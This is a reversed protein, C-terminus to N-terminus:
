YQIRHGRMYSVAGAADVAKRKKHQGAPLEGAAAAAVETVGEANTMGSCSPPDGRPSDPDPGLVGILHRSSELIAQQQMRAAAEPSQKAQQTHCTPLADSPHSAPPSHGSQEDSSPEIRGTAASSTPLAPAKFPLDREPNGISVASTPLAATQFPLNSGTTGQSQHMAVTAVDPPLPAASGAPKLGSIGSHHKANEGAASVDTSAIAQTACADAQRQGGPADSPTLTPMVPANADAAAAAPSKHAALPNAAAAASARLKPPQLLPRPHPSNTGAPLPEEKADIWIM